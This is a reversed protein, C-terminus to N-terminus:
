ESDPSVPSSLAIHTFKHKVPDSDEQNTSGNMDKWGAATEFYEPSLPPMNRSRSKSDIQVVYTPTILNIVDVLMALGLGAVCVYLYLICRIYNQLVYAYDIGNNIFTYLEHWGVIMYM